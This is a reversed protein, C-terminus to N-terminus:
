SERCGRRPIDDIAIQNALHTRCITQARCEQQFKRSAPRAALRALDLRDEDDCSALSEIVGSRAFDNAHEFGFPGPLRREQQQQETRTRFRLALKRHRPGSRRSTRTPVHVPWPVSCLAEPDRIAALVPCREEREPWELLMPAASGMAKIPESRGFSGAASAHRGFRQLPGGLERGFDGQPPGLQLSFLGSSGNVGASGGSTGGTLVAGLWPRVSRESTAQM